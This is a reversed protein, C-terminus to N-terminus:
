RKDGKEASEGKPKPTFPVELKIDHLDKDEVDIYREPSRLRRNGVQFQAGVQYRLQPSPLPITFRGNEDARQGVSRLTYLFRSGPSQGKNMPNAFIQAGPLAQGRADLVVGHLRLSKPLTLTAEIVRSEPPSSTRIEAGGIAGDFNAALELPDLEPVLMEFRGQRDANGLIPRYIGGLKMHEGLALPANRAPRGDPALLRLSLRVLRDLRLTGLDIDEQAGRVISLYAMAEVLQRPGASYRLRLQPDLWVALRRSSRQALDDLVFSGDKQTRLVRNARQDTDFVLLAIESAPEDPGLLIRGKTQIAPRLIVRLKPSASEDPRKTPLARWNSQKIDSAFGKASTRIAARGFRREPLPIRIDVIKGNAHHPVRTWTSPLKPLFDGAEIQFDQIPANKTDRLELRLWRPAEIPIEPQAGDAPAADITQSLLTLGSKGRVRIGCSDGPFPTLQVSQAADLRHEIRFPLEEGIFQEVLFPAEDAWADLGRLQIQLPGRVPGADLRLPNEGRQNELLQSSRYRGGELLEIAWARFTLPSPLAIRVRGRDGGQRAIHWGEGAVLNNAGPLAHLQLQANQWAAGNADRLLAIVQQQPLIQQQPRAKAAQSSVDPALMAVLSLLTLPALQQLM